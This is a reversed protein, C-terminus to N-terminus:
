DDLNRYFGVSKSEFGVARYFAHAETRSIRTTLGVSCCGNERAWKTAHEIMCRGAGRRRAGAHVVLVTITAIPLARHLAPARRLAVLGLPDDGEVLLYVKDCGTALVAELRRATKADTLEYGLERMLEGVAAADDLMASRIQM